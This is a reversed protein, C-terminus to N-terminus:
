VFLLSISLNVWVSLLPLKEFAPVEPRTQAHKSPIWIQGDETECLTYEKQVSRALVPVTTAKLSPRFDEIRCVELDNVYQPLPLQVFGDRFYGQFYDGGPWILKGFGHPRKLRLGGEYTCGDGYIEEPLMAKGQFLYNFSSHLILFRVIEPILGILSKSELFDLLSYWLPAATSILPNSILVRQTHRDFAMATFQMGKKYNGDPHDVRAEVIVGDQFSNL